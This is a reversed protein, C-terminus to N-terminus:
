LLEVITIGSNKEDKIVDKVYGAESLHSRIATMLRGTGIGHLIKLRPTGHVIARDVFRDVEDLAEEVRMGRVNIEPVEIDSVNVGTHEEKPLARAVAKEVYDKNIRMRMNGVIIEAMRKGEDVATVYGEKGITRVRVYDGVRLEAQAGKKEPIIRKRVESAKQKAARVSERDRKAAEKRIEEIEADLEIIKRRV